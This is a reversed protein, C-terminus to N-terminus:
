RATNRQNAAFALLDGKLGTEWARNAEQLTKLGTVEVRHLSLDETPDSIIIAKYGRESLKRVYASADARNRFSAAVLRYSGNPQKRLLTDRTLAPLLLDQGPYVLNINKIQPNLERILDMGLVAHAGYADQAIKEVTTGRQIVIRSAKSKSEAGPKPKSEMSAKVPEPQPEISPSTEAAEPQRKVDTSSHRSVGFSGRSVFVSAIAALAVGVFATRLAATKLGGKSYLTLAAAM